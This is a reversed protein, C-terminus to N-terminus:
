KARDGSTPTVPPSGGAAPAPTLYGRIKALTKAGIGRVRLLGDPGGFPGGAVREAVIRAALAPGIGPLRILEEASARDVDITAPRLTQAARRAGAPGGAAAPTTSDPAGPVRADRADAETLSAVLADFREHHARSLGRFASGAAVSVLVFVLGARLERGWM